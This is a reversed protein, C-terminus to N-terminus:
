KRERKNIKSPYEVSQAAWLDFNGSSCNRSCNLVSMLRAFNIPGAYIRDLSKTKKFDWYMCWVFWPPPVLNTILRLILSHILSLASGTSSIVPRICPNIDFVPSTQRINIIGSVCLNILRLNDVEPTIVSQNDCRRDWAQMLIKVVLSNDGGPYLLILARVPIFLFLTLM